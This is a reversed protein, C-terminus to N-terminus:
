GWGELKDDDAPHFLGCVVASVVVVGCQVAEQQKPGHLSPSQRRSRLDKMEGSAQIGGNRCVM